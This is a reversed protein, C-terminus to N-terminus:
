SNFDVVRKSKDNEYSESRKIKDHYKKSTTTFVQKEPKPIAKVDNLDPQTTDSVFNSDMAVSSIEAGQMNRKNQKKFGVPAFTDGKVGENRIDTKEDIGFRGVDAYSLSKNDGNRMTGVSGWDDKHKLSDPPKIKGNAYKQPM